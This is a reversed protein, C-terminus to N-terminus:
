RDGSVKRPEQQFDHLPAKDKAQPSRAGQEEADIMAEGKKKNDPNRAVRDPSNIDQLAQPQNFKTM